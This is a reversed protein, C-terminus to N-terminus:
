ADYYLEFPETSSSEAVIWWSGKIKACILMDSWLYPPHGVKLRVLALRPTVMSIGQLTDGVAAQSHQYRAYRAHPESEYRNSVMSCFEACSIIEIKHSSYTQRCLPHFVQAMAAGDCNRNAGCYQGWSCRLAGQFDDPQIRTPTKRAVVVSIAVWRDLSSLLTVFGVFSKSEYEVTATSPLIWTNRLWVVKEECQSQCVRIADETLELHLCAPHANEGRTLFSVAAKQVHESAFTTM